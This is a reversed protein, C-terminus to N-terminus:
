ARLTARNFAESIFKQYPLRPYSMMASMAEAFSLGPRYDIDSLLPYLLFIPREEDSRVNDLYREACECVVIDPSIQSVLDDHFFPTRCFIVESYFFSLFWAIDRGFSDGFLLLRKSSEARPSVRIDVIGNNGDRFQNHIWLTPWSGVFPHRKEGRPPILKSGLDGVYYEAELSLGDLLHGEGLLPLPDQLKGVIWSTLRITAENSLHTDTKLYPHAKMSKLLDLPYLVSSQPGSDSLFLEGLRVRVNEELFRDMVSQKDPVIIQLFQRKSANCVSQRRLINESFNERSADSVKRRSMAYDFVSHGGDSLFLVDELGIVVGQPAVSVDASRELSM